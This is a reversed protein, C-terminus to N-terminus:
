ATKEAVMLEIRAWNEPLWPGLWTDVMRMLGTWVYFFSTGGIDGLREFKKGGGPFRALKIYASPSQLPTKEMGRQELIRLGAKVFLTRNERPWQYGIHGDGEIFLKKYLGPNRSKYYRILPNATEVDYLFIIKGGPKLVRRCEQLVGPKLLPPIHEWFYSSVVADVSSDPLPICAAADAQIRQPYFDILRLGAWSLDCGIMHYRQGFYRVGGACGLELVSSKAPVYKKVTWVYGSNILWLPWIHRPKNSRPVYQTQNGYQGEYFVDPTDLLCAIDERVPYQKQCELCEFFNDKKHLVTHDHLCILPINKTDTAM